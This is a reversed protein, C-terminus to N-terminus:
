NVTAATTERKEALHTASATTKDPVVVDKHESASFSVEGEKEGLSKIAVLLDELKKLAAYYKNGQLKEELKESLDRIGALLESTVLPKEM